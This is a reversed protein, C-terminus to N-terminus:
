SRLRALVNRALIAAEVESCTRYEEPPGGFWNLVETKVAALLAAEMEPTIEIEDTPRDRETMPDYDRQKTLQTIPIIKRIRFTM